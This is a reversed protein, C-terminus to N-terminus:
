DHIYREVATPKRFQKAQVYQHDHQLSKGRYLFVRMIIRSVQPHVFANNNMIPMAVLREVVVIGLARVRVM